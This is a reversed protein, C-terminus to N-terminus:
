GACITSSAEDGEGSHSGFDNTIPHGALRSLSRQDRQQKLGSKPVPNRIGGRPGFVGEAHWVAVTAKAEAIVKARYQADALLQAEAMAVIEKHLFHALKLGRAALQRKAERIARQRALVMVARGMAHRQAQNTAPAQQLRHTAEVM